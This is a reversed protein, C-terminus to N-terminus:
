RIAINMEDEGVLLSLVVPLKNNAPMSIFDREVSCGRL